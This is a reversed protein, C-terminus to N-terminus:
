EIPDDLELARFSLLFWALAAEVEVVVGDVVVGAVLLM